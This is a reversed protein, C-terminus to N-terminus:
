PDNPKHCEDPGNCQPVSSTYDQNDESGEPRDFNFSGARDVFSDNESSDIFSESGDHNDGIFSLKTPDQNKAKQLLQKVKDDQFM